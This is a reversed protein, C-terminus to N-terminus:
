HGSGGGGTPNGRIYEEYERLQLQAADRPVVRRIAALLEDVFGDRASPPALRALLRTAVAAAEPSPGDAGAEGDQQLLYWSELKGVTKQYPAAGGLFKSLGSPSMGVQSAVTRLSTREVREGALSRIQEMLQEHAPTRNAEMFVGRAHLPNVAANMTNVLDRERLAASGAAAHANM